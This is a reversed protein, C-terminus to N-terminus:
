LVVAKVIIAPDEIDAKSQVMRLELQAPSPKRNAGAVESLYLLFNMFMGSFESFVQFLVFGFIRIKCTQFLM